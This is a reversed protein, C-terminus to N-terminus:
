IDSVRGTFM